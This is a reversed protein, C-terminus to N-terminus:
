PQDGRKEAARVDAQMAVFGERLFKAQEREVAADHDDLMTAIFGGIFRMITSEQVELAGHRSLLTMGNPGDALSVEFLAGAGAFPRRLSSRIFRETILPLDWRPEDRAIM